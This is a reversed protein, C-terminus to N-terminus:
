VKVVVWNNLVSVPAELPATGRSHDRKNERRTWMLRYNGSQCSNEWWLCMEMKQCKCSMKGQLKCNKMGLKKVFQSPFVNASAMSLNYMNRAGTFSLSLQLKVQWCAFSMYLQRWHSIDIMIVLQKIRNKILQQFWEFGWSWWQATHHHCHLSVSSQKINMAHHESVWHLKQSNFADFVLVPHQKKM